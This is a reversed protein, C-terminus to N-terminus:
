ARSSREGELIWPEIERKAARLLEEAVTGPLLFNWEKQEGSLILHFGDEDVDVLVGDLTDDIM